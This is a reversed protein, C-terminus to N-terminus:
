GITELIRKGLVKAQANAYEDEVAPAQASVGFHGAGLESSNGILTMGLVMCCSQIHDITREQGGYKSGGVSVAAAYKGLWEKDARVARTKDFFSKLQATMSGFYVPSGFIVADAKKVKEFLEELKTGKYCQKSCPSSCCVCFPLKADMVAEHVSALETKAGGDKCVKLVENLLYATNGNSNHSANLALVYM